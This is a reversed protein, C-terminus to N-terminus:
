LGKPGQMQVLFESAYHGRADAIWLDGPGPLMETVHLTPAPREPIRASSRRLLDVFLPADLDLYRPKPEDTTHAFVHRPLSHRRKWRAVELFYEDDRVVAGERTGGPWEGPRFVWKERFLVVRGCTLRPWRTIGPADFGPFHGVPQIGQYGIDVMFSTIGVPNVGSSIVPIIESDLAISRLVFRRVSTSFRVVLDNLPIAISGPSAREGPMEIEHRFLPLRLGANATRAHHNYTVEAVIAGDRAVCSWAERLERVIPNEDIPVGGGHLWAFRAQALGAGNLVASLAIRHRGEDIAAADAAAIQFLVGASWRPEPVGALLAELRAPDLALEEGPAEAARATMLDRLARMLRSARAVDSGAPATEAPDPFAAPRDGEKPEVFGRYLELFPVDADPPHKRLFDREFAGEYNRAPYLTAFIRAYLRMPADLDELLGRPLRLSLGSVADVRFVEDRSLPRNHPLGELSEVLADMTAAREAPRRLPLSDVADEIRLLEPLWPPAGGRAAVAAALERLPRRENYPIEIEAVLIGRDVLGQLFRELDAAPIGERARVVEVLDPLSRTGERAEELFLRMVPHDKVRCLVEDETPNRSSAFKWFTWAEGDRRLTGNPRPVIASRIGPDVALCATIKGAEFVNLIVDLRAVEPRGLIEIPGPAFRAPSTACFLANPSTKTAFRAVYAITKAAAHREDHGWARADRRALARVRDVLSRSVLRLGEDVLPDAALSALHGRARHLGETYAARFADLLEALRGTAEARARVRAALPEPLSAGASAIDADRIPRGNHVARRLAILAHREKAKGPGADDQKVGAASGLAEAIGAAETALAGELAVVGAAAERAGAAGFPALTEFPLTCVRLLATETM